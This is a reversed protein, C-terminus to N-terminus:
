GSDFARFIFESIENLRDAEEYRLSSYLTVFEQRDVKADPNNEMFKNFLLKIEHVSLGTQTTLFQLDADTLELTKPTIVEATNTNVCKKDRQIFEKFTYYDNNDSM